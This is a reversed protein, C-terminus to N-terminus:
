FVKGSSFPCGDRGIGFFWHRVKEHPCAELLRAHLSARWEPGYVRVDVDKEHEGDVSKASKAPEEVRAYCTFLALMALLYSLSGLFFKRCTKTSPNREFAQLSRWWMACPVAAGVPFMWSAIGCASAAWPLGCLAVLYPKCRLATELGTEDTLPFMKYGGRLYDARHIWALAYFHPMQWLTQMVFLWAAHAAWPSAALGAGGLAATFGMLVPLSGSIAGVHTNYPTLVKMPTYMGAYMVMTSGAVVATAPTAGVALVALGLSGSAAAFVKAESPSLQGSPLPRKETRKMRKDRKIEIIQNMAQASSSTMVTGAFLAGLLAPDVLAPLALLYGPLASLAVWVTLKGKALKWYLRSLKGLGPEARRVGAGSIAADPAASGFLSSVAAALVRSADPASLEAEDVASLAPVAQVASSAKRDQVATRSAAARVAGCDKVAPRVATPWGSCRSANARGVGFRSAALAARSLM